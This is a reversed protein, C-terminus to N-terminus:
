LLLNKDRSFKDKRESDLRSQEQGRSEGGESDILANKFLQIEQALRRKM